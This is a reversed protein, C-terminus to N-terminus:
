VQLLFVFHFNITTSNPIENLPRSFVRYNLRLKEPSEPLVRFKFLISASILFINLNWFVTYFFFFLVLCSITALAILLNVDSKLAILTFM